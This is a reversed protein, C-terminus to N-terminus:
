FEPFDYNSVEIIQQDLHFLHNPIKLEDNKIIVEKQIEQQINVNEHITKSQSSSEEGVKGLYDLYMHKLDDSMPQNDIKINLEIMKKELNAAQKVEEEESKKKQTKM